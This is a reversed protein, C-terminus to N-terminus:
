TMMHDHSSSSPTIASLFEAKYWLVLNKITIYAVINCNKSDNKILYIWVQLGWVKSGHLDVVKFQSTMNMYLELATNLTRDNEKLSM